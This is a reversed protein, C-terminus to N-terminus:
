VRRNWAAIADDESAFSNMDVCVICDANECSVYHQGEVQYTIAKSGCFPCPKLEEEYKLELWSFEEVTQGHKRVYKQYAGRREPATKFKEGNTM